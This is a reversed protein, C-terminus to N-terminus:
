KKPLQRFNLVKNNWGSAAHRITLRYTETDHCASALYQHLALAIAAYTEGGLEQDLAM